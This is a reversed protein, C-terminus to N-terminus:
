GAAGFGPREQFGDEQEREQPAHLVGARQGGYAAHVVKFVHDVPVRMLSAAERNVTILYKDQPYEVMWDIDVMGQTESFLAKIEAAVEEAPEKSPEIGERTVGYDNVVVRAGEEALALAEARGIGRGSGTVIAVKGKLLDGM